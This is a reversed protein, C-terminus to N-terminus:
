HLLAVIGINKKISFSCYRVASECLRRSAYTISPSPKDAMLAHAPLLVAEKGGARKSAVHNLHLVAPKKAVAPLPM